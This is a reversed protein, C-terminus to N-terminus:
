WQNWITRYAAVWVSLVAFFAAVWVILAVLGITYYELFKDIWTRPSGPASRNLVGNIARGFRRGIPVSLLPIVIITIVLAALSVLVTFAVQPAIDKDIIGLTAAGIAGAGLM